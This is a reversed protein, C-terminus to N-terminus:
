SHACNPFLSIGVAGFAPFAGFFSGIANASGLAVLERNASVFYNHRRAFTKAAAISEVFGIISLVAANVLVSKIEAGPPLSPLSPVPLPWNISSSGVPGLVDVGMADLRLLRCVITSVIVVVLVEPVRKLAPARRKMYPSGLLSVLVCLSLGATPGHTEQLHTSLFVLRDATTSEPTLGASVAADDLGLLYISQQVMVVVAVGTIFGRVLARSMLSDM